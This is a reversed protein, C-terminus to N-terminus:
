AQAGRVLRGPLEGTPTGESQIAVGSVFTHVYGSADQMLRKGGAPLDYVM